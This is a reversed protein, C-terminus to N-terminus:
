NNALSEFFFIGISKRLRIYWLFVLDSIGAPYVIVAILCEGDPDKKLHYISDAHPHVHILFQNTKSTQNQANSAPNNSTKQTIDYRDFVYHRTILLPMHCNVTVARILDPMSDVFTCPILFISPIKIIYWLTKIFIRITIPIHISTNLFQILHMYCTYHYYIIIIMAVHNSILYKLKKILTIRYKM